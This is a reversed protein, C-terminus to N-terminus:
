ARGPKLPLQGTGAKENASLPTTMTLPFWTQHKSAAVPSAHVPVQGAPENPWCEATGIRAM